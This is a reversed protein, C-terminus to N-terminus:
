RVLGDILIKVQEYPQAGNIVTMQDGAIVVSFPTGEAGIEVADTLDAQVAAQHRGSDVCSEFDSVSVGAAEAFEPLRAVNTLENPGREGFVMDAFKWFAEDGGLEAVCESAEAIHSASPHLSTLPMHRYVWAVEGSPGYEDIVRTMTTHFSKCFPCDFDSYEIVLIPANPNGRIHDAETVPDINALDADAEAPNPTGALNDTAQGGSLYISLAILGFGIIIAAPIAMSSGSSTRAPASNEPNTENM